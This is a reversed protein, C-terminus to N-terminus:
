THSWCKPKQVRPMGAYMLSVSCTSKVARAVDVQLTALTRHLNNEKLYQQILRVISYWTFLSLSVLSERQYDTGYCSYWWGNVRRERDGGVSHYSARVIVARTVVGVVGTMAVSTVVNNAVGVVDWNVTAIFHGSFSAFSITCFNVSYTSHNFCLM